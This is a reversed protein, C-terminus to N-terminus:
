LSLKMFMPYHVDTVIPTQEGTYRYGCAVADGSEDIAVADVYTRPEPEHEWTWRVDGDFSLGIAHLREGYGEHGLVVPGDGSMAIATWVRDDEEALEWTPEEALDFGHRAVFSGYVADHGSGIAGVFWVHGDPDVAADLSVRNWRGELSGYSLGQPDFRLARYAFLDFYYWNEMGDRHLREPFWSESCAFPVSDFSADTGVRVVCDFSPTLRAVYRLWEGDAAMARIEAVDFALPGGDLNALTGDAIGVSGDLTAWDLFGETRLALAPFTDSDANSGTVVHQGDGDFAFIRGHYMEWGTSRFSAIVGGAGDGVVAQCIGDGLYDEAHSLWALEAGESPCDDGCGSSGGSSEGSSSEGDEGSREGADTASAGGSSGGESGSSSSSLEITPVSVCAGVSLALLSSLARM